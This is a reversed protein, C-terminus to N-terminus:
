LQKGLYGLDTGKREVKKPTTINNIQSVPGNRVTQTGYM